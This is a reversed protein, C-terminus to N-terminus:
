PHNTQAVFRGHPHSNATDLMSGKGGIRLSGIRAKLGANIDMTLREDYGMHGVVIDIKRLLDSLTPFIDCAKEDEIDFFRNRNTTLDWGKDQYIEHICRELVYPMPAYMVFGANLAAKLNDIHTQLKVGKMAEFPNLRFPSTMEDGLTFIQLDEFGKVNLLARYESKAPEIVLFPTKSPRQWLQHLLNLCTNTKGSGTVGVVLGHKVLDNASIVYDNGTRSGRDLIEGISIPEAPQGDPVCVGFRATDKVGYGPMEEKPLHTLTALDRSNLASVFKHKIIEHLPHKGSFAPHFNLGLEMHRFKSLIASPNRSNLVLTRIAEPSSKEGSFVIRLLNGM